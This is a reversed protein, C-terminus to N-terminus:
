MVLIIEIARGYDEIAQRYNGLDAYCSGVIYALWNNDTVKLTHNGCYLAARGLLWSKTWTIISFVCFALASLTLLIEKQYNWKELTGPVGWAVM